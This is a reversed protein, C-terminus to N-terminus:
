KVKATDAKVSDCAAACTTDAMVCTSDATTMM